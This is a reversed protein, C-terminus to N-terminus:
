LINFCTIDEGLIEEEEVAVKPDQHMWEEDINIPMVDHDDSEKVMNVASATEILEVVINRIESEVDDSGSQIVQVGEASLDALDYVEM